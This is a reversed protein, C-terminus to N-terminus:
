WWGVCEGFKWVGYGVMFWGGGFKLISKLTGLISATSAGSTWLSYLTYLGSAVGIAEMMCEFAQQNSIRGPYSDRSEFPVMVLGLVIVDKNPLNSIDEGYKAAIYSRIDNAKQNLVEIYPASLEDSQYPLHPLINPDITSLIQEISNYTTVKKPSGPFSSGFMNFATILCIISLSVKKM